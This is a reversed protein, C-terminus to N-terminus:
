LYTGGKITLLNPQVQLTANVFCYNGVNRMGPPYGRQRRRRRRRQGEGGGSEDDPGFVVYLMGAALASGLAVLSYLSSPSSGSVFCEYKFINQPIKSQNMSELNPPAADPEAETFIHVYVFNATKM